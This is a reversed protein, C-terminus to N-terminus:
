LMKYAHNPGGASMAQKIWVLAMPELERAAIIGGTDLVEWGFAKVIESVQHKAAADDGAIFMTPTQEFQPKYMLAAGVTNFAKIVKSDPLWAQVHEGSSTSGGGYVLVGNEQKIVNSTDVVVKGALTGAGVAEITEQLGESKVCLIILEGDTAATKFDTVQVNPVESRLQEAKASDPWRTSLLVEYGEAIFGKALAVGVAGSGLIGIKM